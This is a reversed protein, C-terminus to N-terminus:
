IPSFHPFLWRFAPSLIYNVDCRIKYSKIQTSKMAIKRSERTVNIQISDIKNQKRKWLVDDCKFLNHWTNPKRSNMSADRNRRRISCICYFYFRKRDLAFNKNSSFLCKASWQSTKTAKWTSSFIVAIQLYNSEIISILVNENEGRTKTTKRSFAFYRVIKSMWEAYARRKHRDNSM